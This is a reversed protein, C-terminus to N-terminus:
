EMAFYSFLDQLVGQSALAIAVGGIGLSTVVSSRNYKKYM